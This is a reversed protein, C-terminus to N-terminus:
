SVFTRLLIQIHTFQFHLCYKSSSSSSSLIILGMIMRMERLPKILLDEMQDYHSFCFLEKSRSCKQPADSWRFSKGTQRNERISESLIVRCWRKLWNHLIFNHTEFSYDSWYPLALIWHMWCSFMSLSPSPHGSSVFLLSSLREQRSDQHQHKWRSDRNKTLMSSKKWSKKDWSDTRSCFSSDRSDQKCLLLDERVVRNRNFRMAQRRNQFCTYTEWKSRLWLNLSIFTTIDPSCRPMWQGELDRLSQQLEWKLLWEQWSYTDRSRTVRIVWVGPILRDFLGWRWKVKVSFIRIEAYMPNSAFNWNHGKSWELIVLNSNLDQLQNFKETTVIIGDFCHFSIEHILYKRTLSISCAPSSRV